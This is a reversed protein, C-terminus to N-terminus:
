IKHFKHTKKAPDKAHLEMFCEACFSQDCGECWRLATAEACHECYTIATLSREAYDTGYPNDWVMEGTAENSWYPAQSSEDWQESWAAAEVPLLIGDDEGLSGISDGLTMDDAEQTEALTSDGDVPIRRPKKERTDMNRLKQQKRKFFAKEQKMGESMPHGEDNARMMRERAAQCRRQSALAAKEYVVASSPTEDDYFHENLYRLPLLAESKPDGIAANGSDLLSQANPSGGNFDIWRLKRVREALTNGEKDLGWPHAREWCSVCLMRGLEQQPVAAAATAGKGGGTFANKTKTKDLAAGKEPLPPLEWRRALDEKCEECAVTGYPQHWQMDLTGPNYYYGRGQEAETLHAAPDAIFHWSDPLYVDFKGFLLPKGELVEETRLDEYEFGFGQAGGIFRRTIVEYLRQRLQVRGAWKRYCLQWTKAASAAKMYDEREQHRNPHHMEFLPSFHHLM